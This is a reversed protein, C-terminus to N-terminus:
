TANYKQSESHQQMYYNKKKVQFYIQMIDVYWMEKIWKGRLTTIEM